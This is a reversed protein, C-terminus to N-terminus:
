PFGSQRLLSSVNRMSRSAHTETTPRSNAPISHTEFIMEVRDEGGPEGKALHLDLL